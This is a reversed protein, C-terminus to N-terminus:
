NEDKGVLNRQEDGLGNQVKVNNSGVAQDINTVIKGNRQGKGVDCGNM